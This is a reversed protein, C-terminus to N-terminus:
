CIIMRKTQERRCAPILVVEYGGLGYLLWVMRAHGVLENKTMAPKVRLRM